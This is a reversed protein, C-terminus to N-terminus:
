GEGASRLIDEILQSGYVRVGEMVGEQAGARGQLVAERLVQVTEMYDPGDGGRPIAQPITRLLNIAM